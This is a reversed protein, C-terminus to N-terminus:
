CARRDIPSSPAGRTPAQQQSESRDVLDDIDVGLSAAILQLEFYSVDREGAEIRSIVPQGLGVAVGLQGQTMRLASRRQFIAAGLDRLLHEPTM